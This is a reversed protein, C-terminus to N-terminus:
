LRRPCEFSVFVVLLIKIGARSGLGCRAAAVRMYYLRRPDSTAARRRGAAGGGVVCARCAGAHADAAGTKANVAAGVAVPTPAYEGAAREAATRGRGVRRM